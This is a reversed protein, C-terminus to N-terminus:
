YVSTALYFITFRPWSWDQELERGFTHLVYCGLAFALLVFFINNSNGAVSVPHWFTYTFFQWVWGGQVARVWDFPVIDHLAHIKAFQLIAPLILGAVNIGILVNVANWKNRTDRETFPTIEDWTPM